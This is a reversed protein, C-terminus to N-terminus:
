PLSRRYITAFTRKVTEPPKTKMTPNKDLWATFAEYHKLCFGEKQSEVNCCFCKPLQRKPTGTLPRGVRM